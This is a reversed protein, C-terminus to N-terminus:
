GEQSSWELSLDVNDWKNWKSAMVVAIQSTEKSKIIKLM